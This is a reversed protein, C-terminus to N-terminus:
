RGLRCTFGALEVRRCSSSGACHARVDAVRRARALQAETAPLADPDSLAARHREEESM